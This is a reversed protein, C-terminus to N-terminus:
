PTEEPPCPAPAWHDAHFQLLETARRIKDTLMISIRDCEALHARRTPREVGWRTPKVHLLHDPRM